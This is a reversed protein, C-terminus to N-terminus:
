RDRTKGKYEFRRYYDCGEPCEWLKIERKKCYIKKELKSYKDGFVMVNSKYECLAYDSMISSVAM